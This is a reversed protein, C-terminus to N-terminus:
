DYIYTIVDIIGEASHQHFRRSYQPSSCCLQPPLPPHSELGLNGHGPTWTAALPWSWRHCAGLLGASAVLWSLGINFSLFNCMKVSSFTHRPGPRPREGGGLDEHSPMTWHDSDGYWWMQLCTLRYDRGCLRAESTLGRERARWHLMSLAPCCWKIGDSVLVNNLVWVIREM